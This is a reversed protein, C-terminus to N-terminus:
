HRLVGYPTRGESIFQQGKVHKQDRRGGSIASKKVYKLLLDMSSGYMPYRQM